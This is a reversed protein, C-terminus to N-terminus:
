GVLYSPGEVLRMMHLRLRPDLRHGAQRCRGEAVGCKGGIAPNLPAHCLNGRRGQPSTSCARGARARNCRRGLARYTSRFRLWGPRPRRSASRLKRTWRLRIAARLRGGVRLAGPLARRRAVFRRATAFAQTMRECCIATAPRGHVVAVEKASIARRATRMRTAHLVAPARKAHSDVARTSRASAREQETATNHRAFLIARARPKAAVCGAQSYAITRLEPARARARVPAASRTGLRIVRRSVHAHVLAGLWIAHWAHAAAPDTAVIGARVSMPHASSTRLAARARPQGVKVEWVRADANDLVTIRRRGDNFVAELRDRAVPIGGTFAREGVRQRGVGLANSSRAPWGPPPRWVDIHAILGPSFVLATRLRASSSPVPLMEQWDTGDYEWTAGSTAVLVVRGRARDFDIIANSDRVPKHVSLVESWRVGDWEWTDNRESEADAGGVMVIRQRSSDYTMAHKARAPPRVAVAKERWDVGNWTWTDDLLGQSRDDDVVAGGFVVVERRAEDFAAASQFRARSEGVPGGARSWKDGLWLSTALYPEDVRVSQGGKWSVLFASRPVDDIQHWESNRMRWVDDSEDGGILIIGNENEDFALGPKWRGSPRTLSIIERWGAGDFTWTENSLSTDTVGGLFLVVVGQHTDYTLSHRARPAPVTASQRPSWRQGDWEWTDDRLNGDAGEGGYLVIRERRSDYTLAHGKRPSPRVEVDTSLWRTGDWLWTDDLWTGGPGVGGFLVGRNRRADCALAAGVRAAPSPSSSPM